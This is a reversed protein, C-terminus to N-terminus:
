WGQEDLLIEIGAFTLGTESRIKRACSKASNEVDPTGFPEHNLGQLSRVAKSISSWSQHSQNRIGRVREVNGWPM